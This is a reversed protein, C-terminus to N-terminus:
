TPFIKTIFLNIILQTFGWKKIKTFVGLAVWEEIRVLQPLAPGGAATSRGWGGAAAAVPSRWCGNGERWAQRRVGRGAALRRQRSGHRRGEGQHQRAAGRVIHWQRARPQARSM